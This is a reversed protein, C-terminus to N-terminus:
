RGWQVVRVQINQVGNQKCQTESLNFIDIHHGRIAGGTDEAEYLHIHGDAFRIEVLSHLPIVRPDVAITWGEKVHQGSATTVGDGVGGAPSYWTAIFSVWPSTSLGLGSSRSSLKMTSLKSKWRFVEEKYPDSSSLPNSSTQAKSGTPFESPRVETYKKVLADAQSMRLAPSLSRPDGVSQTSQVTQRGPAQTQLVHGLKFGGLWAACLTLGVVHGVVVRPITKEWQFWVTDM